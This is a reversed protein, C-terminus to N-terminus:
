NQKELNEVLERQVNRAQVATRSKRVFEYYCDRLRSVPIDNFYKYGTARCAVAKVQKMDYNYHLNGTWNFIAAIVRKRWLSANGTLSEIADRLEKETLELTSSVGFSELIAPKQRLMGSNALAAHFARVLEKKTKSVATNM